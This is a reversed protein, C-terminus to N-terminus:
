QAGKVKKLLELLLRENEGAAASMAESRERLRNLTEDYDTMLADTLAVAHAADFNEVHGASPLGLEELFSEVKPDYVLGITPDAMRAAFILTHLRMALCVKARGLVAMMEGPSCPQELLCSPEKMAKRVRDTAGRDVGPQMLLFLIEMGHCRRLHDCVKALEEPFGGAAEWDRVSVAAFPKGQALGTGAILEDARRPAASEMRFVPDATVYLDPRDVGMARLEQASSHDRLTVAAAAQVAKKVKSRNGAKRVPGIGNAYLMVPKGMLKALDMISLYYVLSRTSTTDQLLSGGGSLLVDSKKLAAIVKFFNFRSVANLGYQKRTLAPDKSLVTLEVEDSVQRVGRSISELIADDGTNSFGYYGSMVVNYKRRRVQEYMALCDGAMRRVSYYDFIVQRGYAGVTKKEEASLNLAAAVDRLLVNPDSLPLGRCCFNGAQAEELKDATFLGHYGENGAVIVPKAAAMAELAARSVGVFVEGAAVIRNIDTRPGTMTICARGMAANVEKARANLEDFVNGGGAILLQVGPVLKDLEPAVEILQRAVLARDEDMRSVYSLIPKETDLGFERIVEEGSVNPSFKNTDIGNITVSINEAPLGYERILYAKIDDSVAVTRQGWDTLYRLAGKSNFVWHATTVFPFKMSKHLTGCLFAPIRAHAHVVDPNEQTIVQKLIRRSRVMPGVARLHLPAEYHRIGAATIEPVYVGGNSVIAIDHGQQKLQKALEVIHTEAGGIDLGMTAMLIKM